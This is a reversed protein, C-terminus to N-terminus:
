HLYVELGFLSIQTVDGTVFWQSRLGPAWSGMEGFAVRLAPALYVGSSRGAIILYRIRRSLPGLAFVGSAADLRLGHYAVKEYTQKALRGGSGPMSQVVGLQLHREPLIERASAGGPRRKWKGFLPQNAVQGGSGEIAGKRRRRVGTIQQERKRAHLAV